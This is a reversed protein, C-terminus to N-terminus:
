PKIGTNRINVFKSLLDFWFPAGVMLALGTIFWGFFLMFGEWILLGIKTLGTAHASGWDPIRANFCPGDNLLEVDDPLTLVHTRTWYYKILNPANTDTSDGLKQNSTIVEKKFVLYHAPYASNIPKSINSNKVQQQYQEIISNIAFLKKQVEVQNIQKNAAGMASNIEMVALKMENFDQRRSFVSKAKNIAKIFKISDAKPNLILQTKNIIDNLKNIELKPQKTSEKIIGAPVAVCFNNLWKSSDTISFAQDWWGIPLGQQQLRAALSDTYIILRLRQQLLTDATQRNSSSGVRNMALALEPNLGLINLNFNTKTGNWAPIREAVGTGHSQVFRTALAVAQQRDTPHTRLYQIIRPTSLNFIVAVIFGIILLPLRMKRKYRGTLRQQFDNYWDILNQNLKKAKEADPGGTKVADELHVILLSRLGEPELKKFSIAFPKLSDPTILSLQDLADQEKKEREQDGITTANSGSLTLIAQAFVTASIYTPKDLHSKGGFLWIFGKWPKVPNSRNLTKIPTSLYLNETSIPGLAECLQRYQFAGRMNAIGAYLEMISLTIQSFLLYLLVLSITIELVATLTM